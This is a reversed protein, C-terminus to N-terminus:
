GTSLGAPAASVVVTTPPAPGLDDPSAPTPDQVTSGDTGPVQPVDGLRVHRTLTEDDRRIELELRDDPEHSRAVSMLGTMGTIREGDAGIVVDGVMVGVRDAPGGETVASVLVGGGPEAAADVGAIGIWGHAVRGTERLQDAVTRALAIPVALGRRDPALVLIGVVRGREDLLAGGAAAPVLRADTGILGTQGVEGPVLVDSVSSVIGTSVWSHDGTGDGLAIVADGIEVQSQDGSRLEGAIGEVHLLALGTIVDRGYLTASLTQGESDTVTVDASDEITVGSTLVWDDTIVLGSGRRQAGMTTAVIGVVGPAARAALVAVPPDSVARPSDSGDLMGTAALVGVAVVAGLAGATALLLWDRRGRTARPPAVGVGPRSSLESPHVWLRDLPDPPPRHQGEAGPDELPMSESHLSPTQGFPMAVPPSGQRRRMTPRLPDETCHDGHRTGIGYPNAEGVLRERNGVGEAPRGDRAGARDDGKEADSTIVAVPTM